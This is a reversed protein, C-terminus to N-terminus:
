ARTFSLPNTVGDPSVGNFEVSAAGFQAHQGGASRQGVMSSMAYIIDGGTAGLADKHTATAVQVAGSPLGMVAASDGTAVTMTVNSGMHAIVSPYLDTDGSFPLNQANDSIQVGTVRPIPITGFKVDAWNLNLGTAAM